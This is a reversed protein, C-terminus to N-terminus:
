TVEPRVTIVGAIVRETDGTKLSVVTETSTSSGTITEDAVFTGSTAEYKITNSPADHVIVKGTAGSTGTIIEDEAFNGLAGSVTLVPAEILEVDYLYKGNKMITTQADTLNFTLTGLTGNKIVISIEQFAASTYHRKVKSSFNCGRVDRNTNDKKMLNIAANWDSGANIDQNWTTTAM